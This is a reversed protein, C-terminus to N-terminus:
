TPKNETVDPRDFKVTTPDEKGKRVTIQLPLSFNGIVDFIMADAGEGKYHIKM